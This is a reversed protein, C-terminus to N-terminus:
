SEKLDIGCTECAEQFEEWLESVNKNNLEVVRSTLYGALVAARGKSLTERGMLVSTVLDLKPDDSM